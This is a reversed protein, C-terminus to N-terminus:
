EKDFEMIKENEDGRNTIIVYVVFSTIFINIDDLQLYEDLRYRKKNETNKGYQIANKPCHNFCRLRMYCQDHWMPYGDILEITKSPCM